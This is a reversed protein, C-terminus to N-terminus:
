ECCWGLVGLLMHLPAVCMVAGMDGRGMWCSCREMVPMCTRSQLAEAPSTQRPLALPFPNLVCWAAAFGTGRAAAHGRCLASTCGAWDGCACWLRM